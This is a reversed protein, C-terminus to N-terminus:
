KEFRIFDEKTYLNKFKEEGRKFPLREAFYILRQIRLDLNVM